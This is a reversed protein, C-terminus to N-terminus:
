STQPSVEYLEVLVGGTSKPHIFAYRTGDERSRPTENILTVGHARLREMVADIDAVDLCIHHIGPGRKALYKAVGSDETIPKLLEIQGDGLPLFATRVAEADNDEIGGLDLGLADQWFGLAADLDDVVIAMHNIQTPPM